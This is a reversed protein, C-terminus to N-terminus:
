KGATLLGAAAQLLLAVTQNINTGQTAVATAAVPGDLLGRTKMDDVAGQVLMTIQEITPLSSITGAAALQDSIVQVAKSATALKTAGTGKGFLNEIQLVLPKILPALAAFASIGTLVAAAAM